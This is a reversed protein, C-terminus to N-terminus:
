SRCTLRLRPSVRPRLTVCATPEVPENGVASIHFRQLVMVIICQMQFLALHRGLCSHPGIAFPMYGPLGASQDAFRAPIFREPHQWLAPNRHMGYISVYVLTGPSIASSGLDLPLAAERVLNYVAPWLRM